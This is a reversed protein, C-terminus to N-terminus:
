EVLLPADVITTPSRAVVVVSLQTAVPNPKSWAQVAVTLSVEGSVTVVGTPVTLKVVLEVPENVELLQLRELVPVDPTALQWTV